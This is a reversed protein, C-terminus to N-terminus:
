SLVSLLVFHSLCLYVSLKCLHVSQSILPHSPLCRSPHVSPCCIVLCVCICLNVSPHISLCVNLNFSVCVSLNYSHVSQRILPYYSLYGCPHIIQSSILLCFTSYSLYVSQCIFPCFNLDASACVSLCVPQIFSCISWKILSFCSIQISLYISFLHDSLSNFIVSVCISLHISLCVFM